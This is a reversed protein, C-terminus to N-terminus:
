YGYAWKVQILNKGLWPLSIYGLGWPLKTLLIDLTKSEIEVICGQESSSYQATRLLFLERFSNIPMSKLAPWNNIVASVLQNANTQEQESLDIANEIYTDAELGVLLNTVTYVQESQQGDLIYVLLAHAKLQAAQDKFQLEEQKGTEGERESDDKVTTLLDNKQFFGALYPWLLVLGADTCELGKHLDAHTKVLVQIKQNIRQRISDTIKPDSLSKIKDSYRTLLEQSQKIGPCEQKIDSCHQKLETHSQSLDNLEYRAQTLDNQWILQNIKNTNLRSRDFSFSNVVLAQDPLQMNAVPLWWDKENQQLDSAVSTPQNIQLLQKIQLLQNIFYDLIDIRGQQQWAMLLTILQISIRYLQRRNTKDCNILQYPISQLVPSDKMMGALNKIVQNIQQGIQFEIPFINEYDAQLQKIADKHAVDKHAVDKHFIDIIGNPAITESIPQQAKVAIDKVVIDKVAIDKSAIFMRLANKLKVASAKSTTRIFDKLVREVELPLYIANRIFYIKIFYQWAMADYETLNVNAETKIFATLQTILIKLTIIREEDSYNIPYELSIANEPLQGVLQYWHTIQILLETLQQKNFNNSKIDQIKEVLSIPLWTDNSIRNLTNLIRQQLKNSEVEILNGTLESIFVTLQSLEKAITAPESKEGVENDHVQTFINQKILLILDTSIHQDHRTLYHKIKNIQYQVYELSVESNHIETLIKLLKRYVLITQKLNYTGATSYNKLQEGEIKLPEIKLPEIKLPDIKQAGLTQQQPLFNEQWNGGKARKLLKELGVLDALKLGQHLVINHWNDVASLWVKDQPILLIQHLGALAHNFRQRSLPKLVKINDSNAIKNSNLMIKIALGTLETQQGQATIILRLYHKLQRKKQALDTEGQELLPIFAEHNIASSLLPLLLTLLNPFQQINNFISSVTKALMSPDLLENKFNNKYQESTKLAELISVWHKHSFIHGTHEVVGYQSLGALANGETEHGNLKLLCAKQIARQLARNLTTILVPHIHQEFYGKAGQMFLYGDIVPLNFELNDISLNERKGAKELEEATKEQLLILWDPSAPMKITNFTNQIFGKLQNEIQKIKQGQEHGTETVNQFQIDLLLTDINFKM